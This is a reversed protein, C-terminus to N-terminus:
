RIDVFQDGSGAFKDERRKEEEEVVTKSSWKAVHNWCIWARDIPQARLIPEERRVASTRLKLSTGTLAGTLHVAALSLVVSCSRVCFGISIAENDISSRQYKDRFSLPLDM